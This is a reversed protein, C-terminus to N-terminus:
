FNTSGYGILTKEFNESELIPDNKLQYWDFKNMTKDSNFYQLKNNNCDNFQIIKFM